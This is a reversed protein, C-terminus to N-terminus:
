NFEIFSCKETDLCKNYSPRELVLINKNGSSVTPQVILIDQGKSYITRIKERSPYLMELAKDYQEPKGFFLIYGNNSKRELIRSSHVIPINKKSFITKIKLLEEEKLQTVLIDWNTTSVPQIILKLDSASLLARCKINQSRLWRASFAILFREIEGKKFNVKMKENM